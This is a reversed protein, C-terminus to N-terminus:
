AFLQQRYRLLIQQRHTKIVFQVFGYEFCSADFGVACQAALFLKNAFQHAAYIGLWNPSCQLAHAALCSQHYVKAILVSTPMMM